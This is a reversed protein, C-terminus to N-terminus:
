EEDSVGKINRWDQFDGDINVGPKEEFNTETHIANDTNLFVETDRISVTNSFEGQFTLTIIEGKGGQKCGEILGPRFGQQTKVIESTQVNCSALEIKKGGQIGYLILKSNSVMYELEYNMDKILNSHPNYLDLPLFQKVNQESIDGNGNKVRLLSWEFPDFLIESEPVKLIPFEESEEGLLQPIFLGMNNIVGVPRENYKSSYGGVVLTNDEIYIRGDWIPIAVNM